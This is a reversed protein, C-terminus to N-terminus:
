SAPTCTASAAGKPRRNWPMRALVMAMGCTDTVASFVLGAGVLAALAVGAPHVVWALLAGFLVLGGAAGRVQRELSWVRSVGREVPYGAAIWAQLGGDLIRVDAYGFQQLRAAAQTARNGSRCVVYVPRERAMVGTQPEFRSLPVLRAGAIHAADYEARERVDVVQCDGGQVFQAQLEHATVRQLSQQM